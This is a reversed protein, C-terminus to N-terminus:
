RRGEGHRRATRDFRVTGSRDHPAVGHAEGLVDRMADAGPMRPHVALRETRPRERGLRAGCDIQDVAIALEDAAAHVVGVARDRDAHEHAPGLDRDIAPQDALADAGSVRQARAREIEVLEARHPEDVGLGVPQRRDRDIAVPLIEDDLQVRLRDGVEAVIEVGRELLEDRRLRDVLLAPKAREAAVRRPLRRGLEHATRRRRDLELDDLVIELEDDVDRRRQRGPQECIKALAPARHAPPRGPPAHEVQERVGSRDRDVRARAARGFHARDVDSRLRVRARPPVNSMTTM